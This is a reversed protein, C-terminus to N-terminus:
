MGYKGAQLMFDMSEGFKNMNYDRWTTLEKFM